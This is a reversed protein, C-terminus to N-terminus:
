RNDQKLGKFYRGLIYIESSDNRSAKPKVVKVDDYFWKIDNELSKLEGCNWLKTLFTASIKSVQAAFRLATYCLNLMNENDIDKIGTANPAMDSLIVDAKNEGLIDFIKNHVEKQTFDSNSM